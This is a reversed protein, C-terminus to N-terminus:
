LKVRSKRLRQIYKALESVTKINQNIAEDIFNRNLIVRKM